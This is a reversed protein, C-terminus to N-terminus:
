GRAGATTPSRSCESCDRRCCSFGAIFLAPSVSAGVGLGVLGSGILVLADSGKTVGSLV